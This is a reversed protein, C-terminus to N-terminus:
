VPRVPDGGQTGAQVLLGHGEPDIRQLGFSARVQSGRQGECHEGEAGDKGIALVHNQEGVAERLHVIERRDRPLHDRFLDAQRAHRQAFLRGAGHKALQGMEAVAAAVFAAVRGRHRLHKSYLRQDGPAAPDVFPGEQDVAQRVEGWFIEGQGSQGGQKGAILAPKRILRLCPQARGIALRQQCPV